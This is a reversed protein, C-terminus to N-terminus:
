PFLLKILRVVKVWRQSPSKWLSLLQRWLPFRSTCQPTLAWGYPHCEAEETRKGSATHYGSACEYRVRDKVKFTKQTTSYNGHHLEPALCTELFFFFILTMQKISKMGSDLINFPFRLFYKWSKNVKFRLLCIISDVTLLVSFYDFNTKTEQTGKKM